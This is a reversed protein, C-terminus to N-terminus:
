SKRVIPLYVPHLAPADGVEQWPQCDSMCVVTQAQATAAIAIAVMVAVAIVLLTALLRKNTTKRKSVRSIGGTHVTLMLRRENFTLPSEQVVRSPQKRLSV